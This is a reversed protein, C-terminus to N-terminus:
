RLVFLGHSAAIAAHTEAELNPGLAPLIANGSVYDKLRNM